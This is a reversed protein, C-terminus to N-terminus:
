SIINLVSKLMKDQAKIVSLNAQANYLTFKSEVLQSAQDVNPYQTIGNDDAAINNPDFRAVTPPSIPVSKTEVGGTEQSTQVLKQPVYPQNLISEGVQTQTSEANAINQAIVNLRQTAAAYGSVAANLASVM